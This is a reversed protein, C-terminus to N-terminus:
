MGGVFISEGDDSLSELPPSGSFTFGKLTFGGKNMVIELEDARHHAEELSREGSICDDVYIDKNMMEHIKPYQDKSLAATERM